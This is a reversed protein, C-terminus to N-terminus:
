SLRDMLADLQEPSSYRINLTGGKRGPRIAVSLGLRASIRSELETINPDVSATTRVPRESAARRVLAETQRVTLEGAVVLKAHELPTASALLARAHGASIQGNRLFQLVDEPLGLLRMTNAIHSRSKGVAQAVNEQTHGHAEILRCYADAEELPSLDERQINEILAVELVERDGLERAIAPLEALGALQAARWRREGAIIEYTGLTPNIPRVVLPQLVGKQAISESLATLEEEDFHRRPQHPSPKLCEVPVNLVRGDVPTQKFNEADAGLLASLGMGLGKKKINQTKASM